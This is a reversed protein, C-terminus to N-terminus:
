LKNYVFKLTYLGDFSCESPHMLKEVIHMTESMGENSFLNFEQNLNANRRSILRIKLPFRGPVPSTFEEVEGSFESEVNTM